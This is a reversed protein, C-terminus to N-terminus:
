LLTQKLSFFKVLGKSILNNNTQLNSLELSQKISENTSYHELIIKFRLEYTSMFYQVFNANSIFKVCFIFMTNKNRWGYREVYKLIKWVDDDDVIVYNYNNKYNFNKQRTTNLILCLKINKNLLGHIFKQQKKNSTQLIIDNNLTKVKTLYFPFAYIICVNDNFFKKNFTLVNDTHSFANFERLNDISLIRLNDICYFLLSILCYLLIFYLVLVDFIHVPICILLLIYVKKTFFFIACLCLLIYGSIFILDLYTFTLTYYFHIALPVLPNKGLVILVFCVFGSVRSVNENLILSFFVIFLCGTLNNKM